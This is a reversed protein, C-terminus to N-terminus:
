CMNVDYESMSRGGGSSTGGGFGGSGLSGGFGGPGTGSYNDSMSDSGNIAGPSYVNTSNFNGPGVVGWGGTNSSAEGGLNTLAEWAISDRILRARWLLFAGGSVSELEHDDISRM